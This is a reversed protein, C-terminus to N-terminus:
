ELCLPGSVLDSSEVMHWLRWAALLAAILHVKTSLNDGDFITESPSSHVYCKDYQIVSLTIDTSRHTTAWKCYFSEGNSIKDM